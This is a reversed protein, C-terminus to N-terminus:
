RELGKRALTEITALKAGTFQDSEIVALIMRLVEAHSQHTRTKPHNFLLTPKM